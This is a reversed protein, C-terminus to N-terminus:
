IRTKRHPRKRSQVPLVDFHTGTSASPCGQSANRRQPLTITLVDLLAVQRDCPVRVVSPESM